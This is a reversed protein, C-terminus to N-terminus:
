GQRGRGTHRTGTESTGPQSTSRRLAVARRVRSWGGHGPARRVRPSGSTAQWLPGGPHDAWRVVLEVAFDGGAEALLVGLGWTAWHQPWDIRWQGGLPALAGDMTPDAVLQRAGAATRGYVLLQTGFIPMVSWNAVVSPRLTAHPGDPCSRHLEPEPESVTIMRRQRRGRWWNGTASAAPGLFARALVADTM